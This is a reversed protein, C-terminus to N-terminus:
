GPALVENQRWKGLLLSAELVNAPSDAYIPFEDEIFHIQPNIECLLEFLYKAM